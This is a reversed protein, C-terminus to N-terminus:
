YAKNVAHRASYIAFCVQQELSPKAAAESM